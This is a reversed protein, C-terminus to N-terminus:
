GMECSQDDAEIRRFPRRLGIRWLAADLRCAASVLTQHLPSRYCHARLRHSLPKLPRPSMPLSFARELAECLADDSAPRPLVNDRLFPASLLQLCASEDDSMAVVHDALANLSPFDAAHLMAARNFELGVAENGWYIPITGATFADILKETTYGPSSTNEFCITFRHSALFSLKDGVPRGTTNFARGGSSVPRRRHLIRLFANREPARPNSAVFSCFGRQRWPTGRLETAAPRILQRPDDCAFAWFPLRHHREHDILASTLAFDCTSFDPLVNEGSFYIRRGAFERHRTGFDSHILVSAENPDPTIRVGLARAARHLMSERRSFTPWFDCFALTTPRTM